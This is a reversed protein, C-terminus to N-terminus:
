TSTSSQCSVNIFFLFHLFLYIWLLLFHRDCTCFPAAPDSHLGLGNPAGPRSAMASFLPLLTLGAGTPWVPRQPWVQSSAFLTKAEPWQGASSALGVAARGGSLMNAVLELLSLIGGRDIVGCVIHICLAIAPASTYGERYNFNQEDFRRTLFCLHVM